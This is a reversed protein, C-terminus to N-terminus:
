KKGMERKLKELEDDVDLEATPEPAPGAKTRALEAEVELRDVDDGVGEEMKNVQEDFNKFAGQTQMSAMRAKLAGKTADASAVKKASADLAAKMNQVVLELQEVHKGQAVAKESYERHATLHLRAGEDNGRQVAGAADRKHGEAKETLETLQTRAKKLQVMAQVLEEKSGAHQEKMQQILQDVDGQGPPLAAMARRAAEEKVVLTGALYDHLCRRPNWFIPAINLVQGLGTVTLVKSVWDRLVVSKVFGPNGGDTSNVIRLGMAQKGITQGKESLSWMQYAFVSAPIGYYALWGLPGLAHFAVWGAFGAGAYAAMDIAFATLREQPSALDRNRVAPTQSTVVMLPNDEPDSDDSM